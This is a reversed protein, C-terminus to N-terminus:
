PRCHEKRVPLGAAHSGQWAERGAGYDGVVTIRQRAEAVTRRATDVDMGGQRICYSGAAEISMGNTLLLVIRDRMQQDM